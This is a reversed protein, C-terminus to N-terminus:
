NVQNRKFFLLFVLTLDAMLLGFFERTGEIYPREESMSTILNGSNQITLWDIVHPLHLLTFAGTAILFLLVTSRPFWGHAKLITVIGVSGYIVMWLFPDPDNYQVFAFVIFLTGLLYQTWKM